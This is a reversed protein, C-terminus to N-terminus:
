GRELFEEDADEACEVVYDAPPLARAAEPKTGYVLILGALQM